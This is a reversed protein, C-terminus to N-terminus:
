ALMNGDKCKTKKVKSLPYPVPQYIMNFEVKALKALNHCKCLLQLNNISNIVEPPCGQKKLYVYPIIHDVEPRKATKCAACKGKYLEHVKKNIEHPIPVRGEKEQRKEEAKAWQDLSMLKGEYEIGKELLEAYAKSSEAIADSSTSIGKSIANAGLFAGTQIWDAIKDTIDKNKKSEKM